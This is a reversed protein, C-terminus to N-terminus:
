QEIEAYLGKEIQVKLDYLISLKNISEKSSLVIQKNYPLLQKFKEVLEKQIEYNGNLLEFNDILLVDLDKINLDKVNKVTSIDVYLANKNKDKKIIENMISYLLHTKGVGASGYIFLPNYSIGVFQTIAKAASYAFNNKNTVIFNKFNYWEIM